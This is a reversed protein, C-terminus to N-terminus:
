KYTINYEVAIVYSFKHRLFGETFDSGKDEQHFNLKAAHFNFIDKNQKKYLDPMLIKMEKGYLEERRLGTMETFMLNANIIRGFNNNKASIILIPNMIKNISEVEFNIENNKVSGIQKDQFIKKATAMLERGEVYDESILMLYTAYSYLV